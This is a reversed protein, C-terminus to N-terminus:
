FKELFVLELVFIGSIILVYLKMITQFIKNSDFYNMADAFKKEFDKNFYVIIYNMIPIGIVSIIYGIDFLYANNLTRKYYTIPYYIIFFNLFIVATSTM